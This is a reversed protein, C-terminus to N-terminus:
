YVVFTNYINKEMLLLMAAHYMTIGYALYSILFFSGKVFHLIEPDQRFSTFTRGLKRGLSSLM